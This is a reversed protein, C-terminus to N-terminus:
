ILRPRRSDVLTHQITNNLNIYFESRTGMQALSDPHFPLEIFSCHYRGPSRDRSLAARPGAGGATARVRFNTLNTERRIDRTTKSSIGRHQSKSHTLKHTFSVKHPVKLLLVENELLKKDKKSM